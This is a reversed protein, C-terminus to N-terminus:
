SQARQEKTKNTQDTQTRRNSMLFYFACIVIMLIAALVSISFASWYNGSTATRGLLSQYEAGSSLGSLFGQIQKPETEYYPQIMPAAQASVLLALPTDGLFSQTQEIWAKGTEPNETAIILMAFDSLRKVTEVNPSDWADSFRITKPKVQRPM